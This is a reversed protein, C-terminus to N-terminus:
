RQADAQASNEVPESRPPAPRRGTEARRARSPPSRAPGSGTGASINRAHCSRTAACRPYAGRTSAHRAQPRATVSSSPPPLCHSKRGASPAHETRFARRALAAPEAKGHARESAHPWPARCRQRGAGGTDRRARLRAAGGDDRHHQEAQITQHFFEQTVVHVRVAPQARQLPEAGPRFPVWRAPRSVPLFDPRSCVVARAPRVPFLRRRPTPASIGFSDKVSRARSQLTGPEHASRTWLFTGPLWRCGAFRRTRQAARPGTRRNKAKRPDDSQGRRRGSLSSPGNASTGSINKWTSSLGPRDATVSEVKRTRNRGRCTGAPFGSRTFCIRSATRWSCFWLVRQRGFRDSRRRGSRGALRIVTETKQMRRRRKVRFPDLDALIRGPLGNPRRSGRRDKRMPFVSTRCNRTCFWCITREDGSRALARGRAPGPPSGSGAGRSRPATRAM